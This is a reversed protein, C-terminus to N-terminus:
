HKSQDTPMMEHSEQAAERIVQRIDESDNNKTALGLAIGPIPRNGTYTIEGSELQENIRRIM